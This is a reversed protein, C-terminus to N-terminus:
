GDIGHTATDRLQLRRRRILGIRLLDAARAAPSLRQRLALRLQQGGQLPQDSRVGPSIWHTREQPGTLADSM